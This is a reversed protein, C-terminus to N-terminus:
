MGEIRPYRVDCDLLALGGSVIEAPATVPMALMLCLGLLAVTKKMM